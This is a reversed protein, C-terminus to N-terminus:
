FEFTGSWVHHARIIGKESFGQYYEVSSGKIYKMIKSCYLLQFKSPKFQEASWRTIVIGIGEILALLVGGIIASGAM